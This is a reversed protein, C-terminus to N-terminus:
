DLEMVSLVNVTMQGLDSEQRDTAIRVIKM